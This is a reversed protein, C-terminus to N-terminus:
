SITLTDSIISIYKLCQCFILKINNYYYNFLRM